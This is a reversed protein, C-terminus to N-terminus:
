KGDTVAKTNKEPTSPILYLAEQASSLGKSKLFM